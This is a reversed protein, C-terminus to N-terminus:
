RPPPKGPTPADSTTPPADPEHRPSPPPPLVANPIDLSLLGFAVVPLFGAFNRRVQANDTGSSVITYFRGARIIAGDIVTEEPANPYSIRKETIYVTLGQENAERPSGIEINTIDRNRERLRQAIGRERQPENALTPVAQNPPQLRASVASDRGCASPRACRYFVTPSNNALNERNWDRLDFPAGEDALAPAALAVLLAVIPLLRVTM